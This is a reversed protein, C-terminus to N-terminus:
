YVNGIKFNRTQLGFLYAFLIGITIGLQCVVGFSGRTKFPSIEIIFLPVIVSIIGVGIGFFFRMVM